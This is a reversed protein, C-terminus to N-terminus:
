SVAVSDKKIVKEFFSAVLGILAMASAAGIHEQVFPKV